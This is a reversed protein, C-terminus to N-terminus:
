APDVPGVADRGRGSGTGRLLLGIWGGLFVAAFSFWQVAYSLHPGSDLVPAELPVPAASAEPVPGGGPRTPTASARLYLPSVPYPYQGRLADGDLRFWTTQFGADGRELDVAPFPMLVGEVRVPGALALPALDVTAADAASLWGRNVLLAGREVRVPTLLHVGPMGNRSRGALVVSRDAEAVGEVLARRYTLGATDPPMGDLRVPDTALRASIAQNRELRQERRDLQWLGLRVCGAAVLLVAV